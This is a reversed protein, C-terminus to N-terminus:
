FFKPNSYSVSPLPFFALNSNLIDGERSGWILTNWSVSCGKEHGWTVL